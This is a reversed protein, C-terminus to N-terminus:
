EDVHVEPLPQNTRKYFDTDFEVQSTEANWRYSCQKYHALQHVIKDQSNSHLWTMHKVGGSVLSSPISRSPLSVYDIVNDGDKYNVDNDWYFENLVKSGVKTQFIRPPCFSDIWQKGDFIYNKFPVKWWVTRPDSNVRELISMIQKETYFEDADVIWVLDVGKDLLYILAMNRCDTESLSTDYEMITGRAHFMLPILKKITPANDKPPFTNFRVSVAAIEIDAHAHFGMDIWPQLCREITDECGYACVILGIKM